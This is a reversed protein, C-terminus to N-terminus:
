EDNVETCYRKRKGNLEWPASQWRQQRVFVRRTAGCFSCTQSKPHEESQPIPRHNKEIVGEANTWPM